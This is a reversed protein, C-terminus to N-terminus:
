GDKGQKLKLTILTKGDTDVSQESLTGILEPMGKKEAWKEIVEEISLSDDNVLITKDRFKFRRM